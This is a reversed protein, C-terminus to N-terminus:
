GSRALYDAADPKVIIPQWRRYAALTVRSRPRLSWRISFSQWERGHPAELGASLWAEDGVRVQVSRVGGDTWAWSWIERLGPLLRSLCDGTVEHYKVEGTVKVGSVPVLVAATLVDALGLAALVKIANPALGFEGGVGKTFPYTEYLESEIGARKLFCRWRRARSGAM